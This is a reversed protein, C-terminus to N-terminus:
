AINYIKKISNEAATELIIVMSLIGEGQLFVKPFEMALLLTTKDDTNHNTAETSTALLFKCYM